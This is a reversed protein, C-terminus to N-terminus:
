GRPSWVVVLMALSGNLVAKMQAEATLAIQMAFQVETSGWKLSGIVVAWVEFKFSCVISGQFGLL